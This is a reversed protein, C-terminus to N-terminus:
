KKMDTILFRSQASVAKFRPHLDRAAQDLTADQKPLVSVYYDYIKRHNKISRKVCPIAVIKHQEALLQCM